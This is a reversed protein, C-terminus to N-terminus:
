FCLEPGAPSLLTLFPSFSLWTATIPCLIILTHTLPLHFQSFPQIFIMKHLLLMSINLLQQIPSPKTCPSIVRKRIPAKMHTYGGIKRQLHYRVVWNPTGIM